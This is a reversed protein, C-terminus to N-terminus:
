EVDVTLLLDCPMQLACSLLSSSKLAASRSFPPSKYLQKVELWGHLQKGCEYGKKLMRPRPKLLIRDELLSCRQEKHAYIQFKKWITNFM